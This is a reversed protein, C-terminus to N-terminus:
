PGFVYAAGPTNSEPAGAVAINGDAALSAGFVDFAAGDSAQLQTAQRTNKWGSSKEVYVYAAGQELNSGVTVGPAGVIVNRGGTTMAVAQGFSTGQQRGPEGLVANYNSTNVWGNGPEEYIFAAGSGSFANPASTVITNGNTVVSFGLNASSGINTATLEATQTMSTWGSEPQVFVYAAGAFNNQGDSGAVIVPGGIAVSCGLYSLLGGDTATLEAAQTYGAGNPTFVYVRGAFNNAFFAGVVITLDSGIAVSNGFADGNQGDSATLKGAETLTGSWGGPPRKFVYVAGPTQPQKSFNSTNAAGVVILDDGIAVSTGFGIGNDSSVLKASETMNAWGGPPKLYVYVAGFQEINPDFDAVVVANGDTAVAAGFWDQNMRTSPTLEALQVQAFAAAAFISSLAIIFCLKRM